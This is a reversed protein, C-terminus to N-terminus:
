RGTRNPPAGGVRPLVYHGRASRGRCGAVARHNGGARHWLGLRCGPKSIAALRGRSCGGNHRNGGGAASVRADRAFRGVRRRGTRRCLPSCARSDFGRLQEVRRPTFARSVLARQRTHDPPNLFLMSHPLKNARGRQVQDSRFRVVEPDTSPILETERTSISKGLRNDRLAERCDGFRTLM